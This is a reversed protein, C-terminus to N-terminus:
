FHRRRFKHLLMIKPASRNYDAMAGDPGGTAKQINGRIENTACTAKTWCFPKDAVM